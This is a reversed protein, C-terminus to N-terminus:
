RTCLAIPYNPTLGGLLPKDEIFDCGLVFLPSNEQCQYRNENEKVKECGINQFPSFDTEIDPIEHHIIKLTDFQCSSMLLTIIILIVVRNQM